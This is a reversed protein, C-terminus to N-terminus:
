GKKAMKKVVKRWKVSLKKNYADDQKLREWDVKGLYGEMFTDAFSKQTKM